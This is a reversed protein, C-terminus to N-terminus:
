SRSSCVFNLLWLSLCRAAAVRMTIGKRQSEARTISIQQRLLSGVAWQEEAWFYMSSLSCCSTGLAVFIAFILSPGCHHAAAAGGGVAHQLARMVLVQQELEAKGKSRLEHARVKAALPPSM